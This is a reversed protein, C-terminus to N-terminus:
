RGGDASGGDRSGGDPTGGDGSTGGDGPTGGDDCLPAGGRFWRDILAREAESPEPSGQPPMTRQAYTRDQIREAKDKAGLVGGVTEYRDLRFDKRGSGDTVAGHCSAVCSAALVPQIDKCWTPVPGEAAPTVGPPQLLECTRGEGPRAAVCAHTSPCDTAAECSKGTFDPAELSCGTALAACLGLLSSALRKV